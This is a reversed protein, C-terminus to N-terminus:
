AGGRSLKELEARYAALDLPELGRRARRANKAELMQAIDAEKLYDDRAAEALKGDETLRANLEHETIEPRGKARRKANAAALMQDLDDIENQAELEPSRTPRWDLVDAGSRPHYFGILLLVILTGGVIVTMIVAFPDM